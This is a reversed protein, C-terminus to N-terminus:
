AVRKCRQNGGGLLESLRSLTPDECLALNELCRRIFEAERRSRSAAFPAEVTRVQLGNYTLGAGGKFASPEHCGKQLREASVSYSEPLEFSIWSPECTADGADTAQSPRPRALFLCQPEYFTGWRLHKRRVYRPLLGVMGWKPIETLPATFLSRVGMHLSNEHAALAQSATALAPQLRRGLPPCAAPGSSAAAPVVRVALEPRAACWSRLFDENGVDTGVLLPLDPEFLRLSRAFLDLSPLDGRTATTCVCAVPLSHVAAFHRGIRARGVERAAALTTEWDQAIQYRNSNLGPNATVGNLMQVDDRLWHRLGPVSRYVHDIWTDSGWNRISSPYLSGFLRMHSATHVFAQTIIDDNGNWGGALGWNGSRRLAQILKVDWDRTLCDIDDGLQICYDVGQEHAQQFLANWAYV